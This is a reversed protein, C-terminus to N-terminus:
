KACKPGLSSQIEQQQTKSTKSNFHFIGSTEPSFLPQPRMEMNERYKDIVNM